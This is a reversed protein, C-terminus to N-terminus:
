SEYFKQWKIVEEVAAHLKRLEQQLYAEVVNEADCWLGEDEAQEDVIKKLDIIESAIM